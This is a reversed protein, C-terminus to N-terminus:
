GQGGVALSQGAAAGAAPLMDAADALELEGTGGQLDYRYGVGRVAVIRRGPIRRELQERLRRVALDLTSGSTPPMGIERLLEARSVVVGPRRLLARLITYSVGDVVLTGEDDIAGSGATTVALTGVAQVDARFGRRSRDGARRRLRSRVIAILVRPAADRRAYADAGAMTAVVVDAEDRGTILLLDDTCARVAASVSAVSEFRGADAIVLDFPAAGGMTPSLESEAIIRVAFGDDALHEGLTRAWPADQSVLLLRAVPGGHPPETSWIAEWGM